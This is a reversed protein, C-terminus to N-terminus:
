GGLRRLAEQYNALQKQLYAPAQGIPKTEPKGFNVLDRYATKLTRMASDLGDVAAKISAKDSLNLERDLKLGYAKPEGKEAPARLLAESLGLAELGDRSSDDPILEIRTLADRPKIELRRYGGAVAYGADPGKDAAERVVEVRARFGSAREIKRALTELTDKADIVVATPRAGERSRVFFRDGARLSTAATVLESDSWDLDGQPLGLRDLVSAGGSSVAIASPAAEGDRGSFRRAWEIAGTSADLRAVFGDKTGVPALGALDAAGARGTIWVDGGSVTAATAADDGAGGYYTLRDGGGPALGADLSAVFVDTGGAHARTVTGADLAPNTTTGTVLVRGGDVSLGTIDGQVAGLDRTAELTPQGSAPVSWRRLIARGNEVSATLIANGDTAVASVRDEGATGFQQAFRFTGTAPSLTTAATPTFAQLYGDWGGLAGGGGSVTSRTRGAVFVTGDAGFAVSRAEDVDAAGRRQTWQEQGEADYLTVFSDAKAPDAGDDGGDLAGAVSGAVAVRGGADVALAFGSARDAAGLTRTWVLRGASDYKFLAVDQAGKVTQDALAGDVDALVYVSGDPGAATARAAAVPDPLVTQLARGDAGYTDGPRPVAPPPPATPGTDTQFKLLQHVAKDPAGARQALWVADAREPAGFSVTESVDSRVKIAWRDSGAPLTVTRGGVNVTQPEAAIKHKSLRTKVGAAELQANVHGLVADLSRPTAGMAALDIDVTKDGVLAGRVRISFRVDGSFVSAADFASGQLIPATVYETATRRVGAKSKLKEATEGLALKLKDLDLAELYAAVEKLGADFRRSLQKLEFSTVTKADAREALAKLSALGDYLAFMKRYDEGAGPADLKASAEDILKRALLTSRVREDAPKPELRPDWPPTPATKARAAANAGVGTKAAYFNTLLGYDFTIM